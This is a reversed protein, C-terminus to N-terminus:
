RTRLDTSTLLRKVLGCGFVSEPRRLVGSTGLLMLPPIPSGVTETSELAARLLLMLSWVEGVLASPRLLGLVTPPERSIRCLGAVGLVFPAPRM